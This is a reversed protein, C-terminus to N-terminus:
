PGKEEIGCGGLSNRATLLLRAIYQNAASNLARCFREAIGGQEEGFKLEDADGTRLSQEKGYVTM